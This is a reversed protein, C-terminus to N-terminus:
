ANGVGPKGAAGEARQDMWGRWKEARECFYDDWRNDARRVGGDERTKGRGQLEVRFSFGGHFGVIWDTEYEERADGREHEGAAVREVIHLGAM